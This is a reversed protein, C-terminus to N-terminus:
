KPQKKVNAKGAKKEKVPKANTKPPVTIFEPTYFAYTSKEDKTIKKPTEKKAEDEKDAQEFSIKRAASKKPRASTLQPNNPDYLDELDLLPMSLDGLPSISENNQFSVIVKANNISCKNLYFCGVCFNTFVLFNGKCKSCEMSYLTMAKCNLILATSLTINHRLIKHLVKEKNKIIEFDTTDFPKSQAKLKEYLKCLVNYRSDTNCYEIKIYKINNLLNTSDQEINWYLCCLVDDLVHKNRIRDNIKDNLIKDSNALFDQELVSRGKCVVVRDDKEYVKVAVNDSHRLYIHYNGEIQNYLIDFFTDQLIFNTLM